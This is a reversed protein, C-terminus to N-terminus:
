VCQTVTHADIRPFRVILTEIVRDLSTEDGATEVTEV